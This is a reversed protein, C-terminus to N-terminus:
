PDSRVLVPVNLDPTTKVRGGINAASLTISATGPPGHLRLSTTQSEDLGFVEIREPRRADSEFGDDPGFALMSGPRVFLPLSDFGHQQRVWQPGVIVEGSLLSTWRGAPLYFEIDGGANFVPAVLLNSGLMYQQDLHLCTRDDPFEILMARMMPLGAEVAEHAASYLYPMLSAKLKTFRRTIKVAEDDFAWPVRCRNTAM